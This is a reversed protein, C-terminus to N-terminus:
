ITCKTGCMESLRVRLAAATFGEVAIKKVKSTEGSVVSISSKKAGLQDSLYEVLEKNAKGKEPAAHVSVKLTGDYEGVIATRAAGPSVRVSFMARGDKEEIKVMM